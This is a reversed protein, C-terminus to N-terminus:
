GRNLLGITGINEAAGRSRPPIAWAPSCPQLTLNIPKWTSEVNQTESQVGIGDYGRTIM